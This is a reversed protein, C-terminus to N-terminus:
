GYYRLVTIIQAYSSWGILIVVAVAALAPAARRGAGRVALGILAGYLPLLPLLYRAQEFRQGDTSRWYSYGAAGILGALGLLALLYAVLEAVRGSLAGRLRVLAALALAVALGAVLLAVDYVWKAFGYDLWGFRGVFGSFWVEYPPNPTPHLHAFVGLRPLFLGWVYSLQERLSGAPPPVPDIGAAAPGGAAAGWVPRDWVTASLLAYLLAPVVVVGVAIAVARLAAGRQERRARLLMWLLAFAVAPVFAIMTAKALAGTVLAAALGAARAPTLGRGFIRALALFMAASACALLVDNNVGGGMFGFLPQLAIALGGAIWAWSCGPLLERVFLAGFLAAAGALLASLIRMLAVRTLLDHSPSLWYVGAQLGYYLPPNNTASSVYGDGSRSPADGARVAALPLQEARTGPPRNETRGVVDYFSLARLTENIEPTFAERGGTAKPLKGTEALYQVYAVHANEDPVHFPPVIIGWALANLVGAFAIWRIAIPCSRYLGRLRSM